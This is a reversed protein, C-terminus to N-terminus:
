GELAVEVGRESAGVFCWSLMMGPGAVCSVFNRPCKCRPLHKNSGAAWKQLLMGFLSRLWDFRTRGDEPLRLYRSRVM